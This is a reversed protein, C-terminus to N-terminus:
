RQWQCLTLADFVSTEGRQYLYAARALYLAAAILLIPALKKM